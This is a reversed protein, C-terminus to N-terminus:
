SEDENADFYERKKKAREAKESLELELKHINVYELIASIAFLLATSTFFVASCNLWLPTNGFGIAFATGSLLGIAVASIMGLLLRTRLHTIREQVSAILRKRSWYALGELKSVNVLKSIVALTVSQVVGFVIAFAALARAAAKAEIPPILYDAALFSALALSGYFLLRKFNQM